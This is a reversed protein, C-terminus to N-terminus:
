TKIIAVADLIQGKSDKLILYYNGASLAEVQLSTESKQLEVTQHIISQGSLSMIELSGEEALPTALQVRLVSATPNPFVNFTLSEAIESSRQFQEPLTAVDIEKVQLVPQHFGETLMGKEHTIAQISTEGLTWELSISAGHSIDGATSIVEQQTRQGLLFSLPITMLLFMLILHKM